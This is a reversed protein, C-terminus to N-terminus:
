RTLEGIKNKRFTSKAKREKGLKRGVQIIDDDNASGQSETRPLPRKPIAGSTATISAAPYSSNAAASQWTHPRDELDDPTSSTDVIV